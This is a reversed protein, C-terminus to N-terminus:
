ERATSRAVTQVTLRIFIHIVKKIFLEMNRSVRKNDIHLQSQKSRGISFQDILDFEEETAECYLFPRKEKNDM